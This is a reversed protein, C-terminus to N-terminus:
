CDSAGSLPGSAKLAAYAQALLPQSLDLQGLSQPSQKMPAKPSQRSPQDKYSEVLASVNHSIDISLNSIRHYSATNGDAMLLNKNLAM